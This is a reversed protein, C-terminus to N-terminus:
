LKEKFKTLLQDITETPNLDFSITEARNKIKDAFAELLYTAYENIHQNTKTLNGQQEFWEEASLIKDM